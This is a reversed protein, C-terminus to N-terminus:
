SICSYQAKCIYSNCKLLKILVSQGCVLGRRKPAVHLHSVIYPLEIKFLFVLGLWVGELSSDPFSAPQPWYKPTPHRKMGSHQFAPISCIAWDVTYKIVRLHWPNWLPIEIPTTISHSVHIYILKCFGYKQMLFLNLLVSDSHMM